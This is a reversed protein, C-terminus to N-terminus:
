QQKYFFRCAKLAEDAKQPGYIKLFEDWLPSNRIKHQYIKTLIQAEEANKPGISSICHIGNTGIWQGDSTTKDTQKNYFSYKNRKEAIKTENKNM